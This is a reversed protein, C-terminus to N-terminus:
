FRPASPLLPHCTVVWRGGFLLTRKYLPTDQVSPDKLPFVGSFM